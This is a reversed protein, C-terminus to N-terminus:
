QSRGRGMLAVGGLCILTGPILFEWMPVDEILGEHSLTMVTGNHLIHILVPIFFSRTRLATVCMLIGLLGTPLMRAISLHFFGFAAGVLVCRVWAKTSDRLLGQIAGRFLLEECIGPLVAFLLLIQLLTLEVNMGAMGTTSQTVPIWFAQLDFVLWSLCPATLGVLVALAADQVAPARIQLTKRLPLGLWALVALATGAIFLIQNLLMGAVMDQKMAMQGLFWFLLLAIGFCVVAELGLQGKKRRHSTSNSFLISERQLLRLAIALAAVAHVTTGTFVLALMSGSLEGVLSDRIGLALGSIPVACLLPSLEMDPLATVGALATVALTVPMSLAQGTKLDPALTATAILVAGLMGSLPICLLATEFLQAIPLGQAGQDTTSMQIWGQDAGWWLAGLALWATMLCFGVVLVFRSALVTRRDLRSVLLTELTGREREGAFFDLATYFGGTCILIFLMLPLWKGAAEGARAQSSSLDREQVDLLESPEISLGREKWHAAQLEKQHQELHERLRDRAEKSDTNTGRFRIVAPTHEGPPKLEADASEQNDLPTDIFPTATRELTEDDSWLDAIEEPGHIELVREEMQAEGAETAGEMGGLMLPISVIPLVVALLIAMHDRLFIRLDGRLLEMFGPFRTSM